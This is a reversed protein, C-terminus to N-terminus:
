NWNPEVELTIADLIGENLPNKLKEFVEATNRGLMENGRATYLIGDSKQIIIKYFSADKIITKITLEEMSMESYDIFSQAAKKINRESSEGTIYADMNDYIVSQLTSNRYQMSNTDVLKAVYFLKRPTNDSLEDLISLAKNKIKSSSTKIGVTDAQKDLYWKRPTVSSRCDELSKAVSPFGGAEIALVMLLDDTNATPNLFIPDNNCKIQMKGWVERNDPRFTEVKTWFEKDDIDVQNYTKELELESVITRIEKIRADRQKKDDMGKVEPAFEDLGNMYRLKGRYMVCAMEEIQHTGPFVVYNYEELGMNQKTADCYPRIAIKGVNKYKEKLEELM